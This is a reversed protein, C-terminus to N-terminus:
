SDLENSSRASKLQRFTIAVNRGAVFMILAYAALHSLLRFASLADSRVGIGYLATSSAAAAAILLSIRDIRGQFVYLLAVAVVAILIRLATHFVSPPPRQGFLGVRTMTVVTDGGLFGSVLFVAACAVTILRKRANDNSMKFGIGFLGEL